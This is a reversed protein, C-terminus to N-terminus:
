RICFDDVRIRLTMVMGEESDYKTHCGMVKHIETDNIKVSFGSIRPPARGQEGPSGRGAKPRSSCLRLEKRKEQLETYGQFASRVTIFHLFAGASSCRSRKLLLKGVFHFLASSCPQITGGDPLSTLTYGQTHLHIKHFLSGVRCKPDLLFAAPADRHLLVTGALAKVAARRASCSLPFCVCFRFAHSSSLIRSPLFFTAM